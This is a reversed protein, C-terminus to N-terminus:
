RTAPVTAVAAVLVTLPVAVALLVGARLAV